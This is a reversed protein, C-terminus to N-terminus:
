LVLAAPRRRETGLLAAALIASSGVDEVASLTSSSESLEFVDVFAVVGISSAVVGISLAAYLGMASAAYSGGTMVGLGTMFGLGNTVGLGIVFGLGAAMVGLGTEFDLGSMVGLGAEFGLGAMVGLGTVFGLDTMVGLEAMVGLGLDCGRGLPPDINGMIGDSDFFRPLFDVPEDGKTPPPDELTARDDGETLIWLERTNSDEGTRSETSTSVDIPGGAM